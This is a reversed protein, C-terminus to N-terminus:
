VIIEGRAKREEMRKKRAMKRMKKWVANYERQSLFRVGGKTRVAYRIESEDQTCYFGYERGAREVEGTFIFNVGKEDVINKPYEQLQASMKRAKKM